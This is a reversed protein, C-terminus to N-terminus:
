RKPLSDRSGRYKEEQTGRASCTVGERQKEGGGLPQAWERRDRTGREHEFGEVEGSVLSLWLEAVRITLGHGHPWLPGGRRGELGGWTM